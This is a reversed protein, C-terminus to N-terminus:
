AEGERRNREIFNRISQRSIEQPTMDRYDRDDWQADVKAIILRMTEIARAIDPDSLDFWEASANIDVGRKTGNAIREILVDILRTLEDRYLNVIGVIVIVTIVYLETM